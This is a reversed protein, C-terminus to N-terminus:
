RAAALTDADTQTHAGGAAGAQGVHQLEDVLQLGLILHELAVAHLDDDVGLAQDIQVAGLQVEGLFAEVLAELEVVGVHAALAAAAFAEADSTVMPVGQWKASNSSRGANRM